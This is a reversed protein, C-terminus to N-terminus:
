ADRSTLVSVIEAVEFPKRVWRLGEAEAQPVAAANASGTMLVLNAEPATSRLLRLAGAVDSEIPSLDVLVADPPGEALRSRMQDATRAVRLTAGRAELATELLAIVDSDDEIILVQLGQLVLERATSRPAAAAPGHTPWTVRFCAGAVSPVIEVEGGAARAVARAHPLGVGAGGARTSDGEFVSDRRPVPVGPGRDEIDVYVHDADDSLSTMVIVDTGRPAHAIANLVINTVVQSLDGSFDIRTRTGAELALRVGARNAEVALSDVTERVVVDLQDHEDAGPADAGISRRALNRAARARQEIIRLAYAVSEPTAGPARAESVWGLMVTLANSVDHLAGRPDQHPDAPQNKKADGVVRPFNSSAVGQTM